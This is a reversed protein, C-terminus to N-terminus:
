AVSTVIYVSLFIERSRSVYFQTIKSELNTQRVEIIKSYVNGSLIM